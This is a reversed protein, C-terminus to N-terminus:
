LLLSFLSLMVPTIVHAERGERGQVKKREVLPVQFTRVARAGATAM